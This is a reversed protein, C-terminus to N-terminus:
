SQDAHKFKGSLWERIRQICVFLVPVLLLSLLTSFLMGGFVTTGLSRRTVAGAGTAIVLPVVGLIFAFATMLIPRLRVRSAEAAAEMVSLGEEHRRRAFEVILIANKSALGILMVMGIQCYIDNSYGRVLQAALGGFIALPVALMVMFPAAWSEYQAALFLFVFVLALGFIVPALNGAKIQQYMIGTWEYNMGEPMVEEAVEQMAAIAEGTSRGPAPNGNIMAAPFINYHPITEPGTIHEIKVLASLPIMKGDRNRVYLESIDDINDRSSSKAQLYVRYIRGYKNFQNVYYSGLMIELTKFVEGMPVNLSKVKTRDIDLYLQPVNTAFTTSLGTLEPRKNGTEIIQQAVADLAKPGSNELDQLEFQFGGTTSLGQVPPANFVTVRANSLTAGKERLTEMVAEAKLEISQREDWPELIFFVTSASSQKSNDIMNFGPISVSDAMGPIKLGMEVLQSTVNETQGIATGTPTQILAVVYGQDEEPLFGTPVANFLWLTGAILIAFAVLVAPWWAICRRVAREYHTTLWDFSTNFWKAWQFWAVWKSQTFRQWWALKQGGAAGDNKPKLLVGCLAPSLSLSNIASIGVSCAITLAFQNYLQGVIGPMFAVPVFVAMLVLTTAVIPGTVEGMAIRAAERTNKVGQELQRQVNEVVVIADDVVLGIALVLGLLSLTNISFGLVTMLAFTGILSVPITIAAILTAHWSQLFVYVVLFVLLVAIFLTEVVEDISANVYGTTDYVIKYEVGEPFRKSLKEMEKHIGESVQLANAGPLQYIAVAISPKNNLGCSTDYNEAGLEVGGVDKIRVVSGDPRTRLIIDEFQEIQSLRGLTNIQYQFVQNKRTPPGGIKGAAVQLNQNRIAFSVDDGTIGLAALKAPDLWIRLSYKREGFINVFGVGPLRRLIDCINIDAYNSLFASDRSKDPSVLNVVLTMDPSQKQVKVGTRNVIEPVQSKAIEVKNMVDVAAISLNYGVDFTITITSNGNNDSVSSMYIMGEVGNIQEEIPTTVSDAVVQASAGTYQSIVQVQPPVIQPYLAIPLQTMCVGGAVIFVLAM